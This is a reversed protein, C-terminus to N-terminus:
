GKVAGAMVGGVIKKQLLIFIVIIPLMSMTLAPLAIDWRSNYMGFLRNIALQVTSLKQNNLLVLPIMFDNWVWFMDMVFVSFVVPSLLPFVIRVFVQIVGCGDIRAAEELEYPLTKVGSRIMFFAFALGIGWYALVAGPITNNLHMFKMVQVLPIMITAFPILMSLLIASSFIRSYVTPHREAWYATMTALIIVGCVASFSVIATNKMINPINVEEWAKVYNDFSWEDPFRLPFAIIENLPKFSNMVMIWLPAVFILVGALVVMFTILMSVPNKKM